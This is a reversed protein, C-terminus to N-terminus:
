SPITRAPSDRPHCLFMRPSRFGSGSHRREHVVPRVWHTRALSPSPQLNHRLRGRDRHRRQRLHQAPHQQGHHRWRRWCRRGLHRRRRHRQRSAAATSTAASPPAAMPPLALLAATVLLLPIQSSCKRVGERHGGESGKWSLEHGGPEFGTRRHGARKTRNQRSRGDRTSRVSLASFDLEGRM